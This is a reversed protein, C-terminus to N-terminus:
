RWSESVVQSRPSRYNGVTAQGFYSYGWAVVTGDNKLALNHVSGASIATVGSLGAPVTAQGYDNCGWAVVTGGTSASAPAAMALGLSVATGVALV